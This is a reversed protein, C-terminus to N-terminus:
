LNNLPPNTKYIEIIKKAVFKIDFNRYLREQLRSAKEFTKRNNKVMEELVSALEDPNHPDCYYGANGNDIVYNMGSGDVRGVMVAKGHVAAELLVMGFAETRELSPLLLVNSKDLIDSKVNDAVSGLIKVENKLDNETIYTELRKKLEGEGILTLRFRKGRSKLLKLAKLVLEHNKYYTLRGIMVIKLAELATNDSSDIEIRPESLKIGLPIVTCKDTFQSLPISSALYDPSTVLVRSACILLPRELLIRYIPYFARVLKNPSAGLVDSHWHIIIHSKRFIFSFLLCWIASLNPMHVHVIEPKLQRLVKFLKLPYLPSVPAFLIQGYSKAEFIRCNKWNYNGEKSQLKDAHILASVDLGHSVQEEMLNSMFTEIGGHRPQFYKGIHLVKM